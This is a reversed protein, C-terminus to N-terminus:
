KEEELKVIKGTEEIPKTNYSISWSVNYERGCEACEVTLKEEPIWNPHSQHTEFIDNDEYGCYPCVPCIEDIHEEAKM